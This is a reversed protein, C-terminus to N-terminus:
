GAAGVTMADDALKEAIHRRRAIANRSKRLHLRAGGVAGAGAASVLLAALAAGGTLVGSVVAGGAVLLGGSSVRMGWVGGVEDLDALGAERQRLDAALDTLLSAVAVRIELSNAEHLASLLAAREAASACVAEALRGLAAEDVADDMTMSRALAILATAPRATLRRGGSAGDRGRAKM